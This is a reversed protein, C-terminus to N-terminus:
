NQKGRREKFVQKHKHAKFRKKRILFNKKYTDVAANFDTLKIM